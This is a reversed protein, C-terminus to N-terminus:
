DALGLFLPEILVLVMAFGILSLLASEAHHADSVTVWIAMGALAAGRMAMGGAWGVLFGSGRRRGWVLVAFAALQVGYAVGAALWVSAADTGPVVVVAGTALLLVVPAAVVAYRLWATM